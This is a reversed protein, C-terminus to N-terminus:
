AQVDLLQGVSSKGVENASVPQPQQQQQQTVSQAIVQAFVQAVQEEQKIANLPAQLGNTARQLYQASNAVGVPSVDM